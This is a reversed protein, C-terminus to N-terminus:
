SQNRRIGSTGAKSEIVQLGGLLRRNWEPRLPTMGAVDKRATMLILNGSHGPLLRVLPGLWSLRRRWRESELPYDYGKSRTQLASLQLLRFWDHLRGAALPQGNFPAIERRRFLAHLGMLSHPNFNLMILTGGPRLVRAAERLVQHPDASFELAHHLVLIDIVASQVPLEEPMAILTNSEMGLEVQPALLVGHKARAHECFWRRGDLSVQLLRHGQVQSIAKELMARELVLTQQGLPTDYWHKLQAIQNRIDMVDDSKKSNM